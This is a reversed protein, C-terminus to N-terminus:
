KECCNKVIYKTVTGHDLFSNYLHGSFVEQSWTNMNRSM